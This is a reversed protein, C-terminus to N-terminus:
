GGLGGDVNLLQGTVYAARGSALFAVAEAVDEARGLRKLATARRAGDFFREDFEGAERGRVTMGADIVGVGVANARVGHRGEERAIGQVLAWVAAKPVISLVDHPLWHGIGCTVLATLSGATERLHPLAAQALHTFGMADANIHDALQSARVDAVPTLTIHPGSAVVVADVPGLERAASVAAKASAPDTPDCHVTMAHGGNDTIRVAAARAAAQNSRYTLAVTRGEQAVRAAIAQGLGGSGGVVITVPSPDVM